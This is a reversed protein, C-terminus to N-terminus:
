KPIYVSSKPRVNGIGAQPYSGFFADTGRLSYWYLYRKPYHLSIVVILCYFFATISNNNDSIQNDTETHNREPTLYLKFWQQLTIEQGPMRMGKM